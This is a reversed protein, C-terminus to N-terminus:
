KKTLTITINITESLKSGISDVFVLHYNGLFGPGPQWYFIGKEHDTFSGVPLRRLEEGVKLYGGASGRSQLLAGLHIEIRGMEPCEILYDGDPGPQVPQFSSNLFGKKVMLDGSFEGRPLVPKSHLPAQIAPSTIRDTGYNTISFYRSGIGDSNGADDEAVWAITHVGNAYASTDLYFYGAAGDSNNYGPFLAAIDERFGGYVPQGVQVGDVWVSLTSGDTPITNPLPTLAWGVNTYVGSASGGQAPTDIAGFPKVANANDITVTRSGLEVENGEIDTCVAVLSYSGDPLSNTLLMYGWGARFNAPTGIYAAELDPRAGEVFIADGIIVRTGAVMRYIKVSEVGIDDLAWGTVAVSSRITTAEAPTEFNGFPPVTSATVNLTVAVSQPTNSADGDAATVTGTYTGATLGTADVSVSLAGSGTGAAPSVALWSDSAAATWDLTGEGTNDILVEEATSHVNATSAGFTLASRSLSIEPPGPPTVYWAIATSDSDLTVALESETSDTGELSWKSFEKGNYTAPATLTVETASEYTRVFNTSGDGHGDRDDPTVTVTAGTDPSTQVNLTYYVPPAVYIAVAAHDGDMTVALTAATSDTGDLTWKSFDNGNYTAPATLTVATGDAYTRTFNTTGDGNSNADDPSVTITAGTDPTTQVDLTYYTGDQEVYVAVATHNANMTVPMTTGSYDSGDLTWKSFIMGEYSGPATLTVATGEEYSRTFNTSGSGSGNEDNPTVTITVNTDPSSQLTLTYINPPNEYIAVATHNADMTVALTANSSGTGDLTWGSFVRGNYTSPATLTVSVGDQYTRTFNSTGTGDGNDDNPSVTITAGTDPTTQVTLDYFSVPSGTDATVEASYGSTVINPNNSHANTRTSVVFYYLTGSNLSTVTYSSVTKDATIGSYTWAGGSATSYYVMYGGTDGTYTIPTWSVRASTTSLPLASLGTPAITQTSEWDPDKSTIFTRVSEDTTYFGNYGIDASHFGAFLTIVTDPIDMIINNGSLRAWKLGSLNSFAAPIVTLNNRSVYLMELNALAGMESPLATLQNDSLNLRELAALNGMETPVSTIQNDQLYLGTLNSLSGLESPVTTIQNISLGLVELPTLSGLETPISTIRNDSLYIHTLSNCNALEAPIATIANDQLGLYELNALNELETPIQTFSNQELGLTVLSTMNGLQSPIAGTLSNYALRLYTLNTLNGLQQPITGSLQCRILEINDLSNINGIEPPIPGALNQQIFFLQELFPLDELESPLAGTMEMDLVYYLNTVHDATVTVATWTGETGILSFGDAELPPTKWNGWNDGDTANYFAILAARESAPIAGYLTIGLVFICM